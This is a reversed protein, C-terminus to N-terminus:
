IQESCEGGHKDSYCWNSSTTWSVSEHIEMSKRKGGIKVNVKKSKKNFQLRQKRQAISINKHALEWADSLHTVLVTRYDRIDVQLRQLM